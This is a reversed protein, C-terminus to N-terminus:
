AANERAKKLKGFLEQTKGIVVDLETKGYALMLRENEVIEVSEMLRRRLGSIRKRHRVPAVERLYALMERESMRQLKRVDLRLLTKEPLRAVHYLKTRGLRALRRFAASNVLALRGVAVLNEVTRESIGLVQCVHQLGGKRGEYRCLLLSVIRAQAVASEASDTRDKIRSEQFSDCNAQDLAALKVPDTEEGYV